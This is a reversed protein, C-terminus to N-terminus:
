FPTMKPGKEPDKAGEPGFPRWLRPKQRKERKKVHKQGFVGDRTGKQPKQTKIQDGFVGVKQCFDDLSPTKSWFGRNKPTNKTTTKEARNKAGARPSPKKEFFRNKPTKKIM